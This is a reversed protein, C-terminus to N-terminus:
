HPGYREALYATTHRGLDEGHRGVWGDAAEYGAKHLQQLLEWLPTMKSGAPMAALTAEDHIEHVRLKRLRALLGKGFTLLGVENQIMVLGRMDKILTQNFSLETLRNSIDAAVRPTEERSMPNITVLMLDDNPSNQVLPFIPPNASYGGDWYDVGDITVPPFLLPLCASALLVEPAMERNEFIRASGTRVDTASLFLRPAADSRLAAFDVHAELVERLLDQARAGMEPSSPMAVNGFMNSWMASIAEFAMPFAEMMPLLPGAERGSRHIAKWFAELARGAGERGGTVLGSAFVAANIAGASAGSLASIWIREEELLRDLVGWTFAGHAGGGQLALDLGVERSVTM